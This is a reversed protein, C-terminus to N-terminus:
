SAPLGTLRQLDEDRYRSMRLQQGNRLIVIHYGNFWPQIERVFRINVITSRHIRIFNRPNLQKQLASLAKRLIHVENDCHLLLTNGRAELWEIRNTEILSIRGNKPVPIRDVYEQTQLISELLREVRPEKESAPKPLIAAQTEIRLRARAFAKNFRKKDFPKLLYDVVNFEYASVAFNAFATIIITAPVRHEGLNEIVSMGNMEPMQIDLFVLDPAKQRIEQLASRGDECEAVIEVDHDRLLRLISKRVLPEDDAILVKLSM